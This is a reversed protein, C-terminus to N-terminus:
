SQATVVGDRERRLLRFLWWAVVATVVIEVLSAAVAGSTSVDPVQQLLALTGVAIPTMTLDSRLLLVYAALFGIGSVSVASVWQSISSPDSPASLVAGAVVLLVGSILRHRTWGRTLDDVATLLALLTITRLLLAPVPDLVAAMLPLYAALAGVPPWRPEGSARIVVTIAAAIAGLSVGLLATQAWTMRRRQPMDYPIAGGALALAAGPLLLGVLGIGLFMALQLEFPQATSFGAVTVPWRNIASILSTVVFLAGIRAFVGKSFGRRRSWAIIGTVSGSMLAGAAILTALVGVIQSLTDRSRKERQWAEPINLFPRVRSISDGAVVVEVRAEGRAEGNAATEVGSVGTMVLPEVTLDQFTFTWDTRASLKSPQASVERLSAAPIRLVREIEILARQRAEEESLSAGPRSEPLQHGIREAEGRHNVLVAWEEARDAVDGTFKAVRVRWRPTPLYRGLLAEFRERGGVDWVFQHAESRGNDLVPMVRWEPSLTVGGTALAERAIRETEQRPVTLPPVPSRFRDAVAWVVLAVVGVVLAARMATAGIAPTIAVAPETARPPPPADPQWSSNRHEDPLTLGRGSRLRAAVVVWLPVLTLGIVMARDVWIGSANSVFLPLAFWVVDFAYHLIIGPLLGLWLYILGFGISPVILEVPRAYSPQTPYPAHGAGFVITQVVFAAIIFLGRRGLRDGILAAGAIPVARFLAEEWFGAQLSNAIASLWPVYTALIDPHILAESPTWWGFLRTAYFYLLVDYAFFAAVLLFGATTAGLVTTSAAATRSWVRWFQPHHGFARRTLSEAAMFSLSFLTAFGAFSAILMTIQQSLFSARSVATDYSMWLLPFENIGALLQLFAIGVGWKVAPRAIVWRHRLLWFLGFGIGGVGYLVLMAISGAAGIAENASRMEEYRRSFAQPIRIFHTLETLRDGTVTMRLRYRGENLTPSPREYTFTHDVRGQPRAERSQEVLTFAQLDNLWLRAAEREAIARADEASLAAGAATEDIQEIFGYPRGDARFRILAEHKQGEQFHRVRWTYPAYLGQRLMEAYAQKGGGELEIFTQATSDTTFSAAERYTAPGVRERGSLERAAALAAERDMTLNLEVIPFAGPFLRLALIGSAISLATLAIWFAPKRFM